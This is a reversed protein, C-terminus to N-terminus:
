ENILTLPEADKDRKPTFIENPGGRERRCLLPMNRIRLRERIKQNMLSVKFDNYFRGGKYKALEREVEPELEKRLREIESM